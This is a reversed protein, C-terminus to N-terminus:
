PTESAHALANQVLETIHQDQLRYYIHKGRRQGKVLNEHKLVKLRQSITSIDDGSESALESVCHEGQSLLFLLHLRHEDALARFIGAAKALQNQGPHLPHSLHEAHEAPTCSPSALQM